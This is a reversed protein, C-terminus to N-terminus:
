SVAASRKLDPVFLRETTRKIRNAMNVYGRTTELDRHQMLQQLEFLDMQGANMTAFGRRLDHFGYWRGRKGSKPMPSGDALKAVAQIADFAAWLHRRGHDWPFVLTSFTGKIGALHEVILPHIPILDDRRSKNAKAPSFATGNVLDVNEWELKLISGIRWGTMYAFVLLSRWWDAPAVAAIPLRGTDKSCAPKLNETL